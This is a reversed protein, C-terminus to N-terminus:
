NNGNGNGNGNGNEAEEGDNYALNHSIKQSWNLRQVINVMPTGPPLKNIDLLDEDFAWNRDPPTYYGGGPVRWAEDAKRSYWLNAASGRWKFEENGWDELFRALNNFGGNFTHGSAGTETSGAIYSANVETDNAQRHWKNGTWSNGDSWNNSLATYADCMLSAAKKNVTNFDGHTYLPLDTAVTLDGNLEEGDLLRIGVLYSNNNPYDYSAYIIGNSPFYGSSNLRDMNIDYAYVDKGERDDHFQPGAPALSLAGSATLSGTVNLWTGNVQKYYANGGIFKLGAQNEYSSPNSGGNDPDIMRTPDGDSVVPMYLETIGHNGDEIQGDWRNLSENVWNDEDSDLFSNDANKMSQYNGDEDKIWVDNSTASLNSGSKMGHYIDGAATVYSDLYLDSWTNLYMDGNTHVRGGLTMIPQNAIELDYEYFVAFQFLPILADSVQMQLEVGSNSANDIGFSNVTFTKMLGYLGKYSGDSLQKNVAPGDDSTTYKYIYHLEEASGSPLPDPPVGSAEYSTTIAAAAMELGSEAAYFAGTARSENEAIQMDNNSTTISAIGILSLMFLIALCVLLVIGSENKLKQAM